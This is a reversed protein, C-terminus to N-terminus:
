FIKIILQSTLYDFNTGIIMGFIFCSLWISYCFLQYKLIIKEVIRDLTIIYTIGFSIGIFLSSFINTKQFCFLIIFLYCFLFSLIKFIRIINLSNKEYRSLIKFVIIKTFFIGIFQFLNFIMMYIEISIKIDYIAIPINNNNYYRSNKNYIYSITRISLLSFFLGNQFNLICYILLSKISSLRTKSKNTINLNEYSKDNEVLDSNSSILIENNNNNQKNNYENDNDYEDNYQYNNFSKLKKTTINFNNNNNDIFYDHIYEEETENNLNNLGGFYSIYKKKYNSHIRKYYLIFSTILFLLSFLYIYVLSLCCSLLYYGGISIIIIGLSISIISLFKTLDGGLIESIYIINPQFLAISIGGSLYILFLIGIACNSQILFKVIFSNQFFCFLLLLFISIFMLIYSILIRNYIQFRRKSLISNIWLFGFNGIHILSFALEQLHKIWDIKNNDGLINNYTKQIMWDFNLLTSYCTYYFMVVFFIEYYKSNIRYNVKM